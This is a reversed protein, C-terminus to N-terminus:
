QIFFSLSQLIAIKVMVLMNKSHSPSIVWIGHCLCGCLRLLRWFETKTLSRRWVQFCDWILEFKVWNFDLLNFAPAYDNGLPMCMYVNHGACPRALCITVCTWVSEHWHWIKCNRADPMCTIYELINFYLLLWAGVQMTPCRSFIGKM